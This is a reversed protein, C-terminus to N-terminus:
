ETDEILEFSNFFKDVNAKSAYSGDRMIAIQYLRNNVLFIKYNVYFQTSNAKFELGKHKNYMIEKEETIIAGLNSVAGEKAGQLMDDTNSMAVMESPYDSYAIMEAETVSKEYMFMYMDINGVETPISENSVDPTGSFNVKFKGDASHFKDSATNDEMNDMADNLADMIEDAQAEVEADSPEDCSVVFLSSIFLVAIVFFNIKKM